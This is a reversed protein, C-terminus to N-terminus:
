VPNPGRRVRFQLRAVPTRGAAGSWMSGFQIWPPSWSSLSSPGAADKSRGVESGPCKMVFRRRANQVSRRRKSRTRTHSERRFDLGRM